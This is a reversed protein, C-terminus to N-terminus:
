KKKTVKKTPTKTARKATTRKATTRPKSKTEQLEEVISILKNIKNNLLSIESLIINTQSNPETFDFELQDPDSQKPVPPASGVPQSPLSTTNNVEKPSEIGLSELPTDYPIMQAAVDVGGPPGVPPMQSPTPPTFKADIESAVRTILSDTNQKSVPVVTGSDIEKSKSMISGLFNAIAAKENQSNDEM